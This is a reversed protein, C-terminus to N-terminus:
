YVRIGTFREPEPRTRLRYINSTGFPNGGTSFYIWGDPGETLDIIGDNAGLARQLGTESELVKEISSVQSRPDVPNDLTLLYIEGLNFTGFLVQNRYKEPLGTGSYICIGTPSITPQFEFYIPDIYEENQNPGEFDNWGFHDGFLAQNIEDFSIFSNETFYLAESQPHFAFDFANRVGMCYLHSSAEGIQPPAAPDIFYIGGCWNERELAPNTEREEGAPLIGGDGMSVFLVQEPTSGRPNPGFHINEINHVQKDGFGEGPLCDPFDMVSTLDSGMGEGDEVFQSIRWTADSIVHSVYVKGGQVPEFGPDFALGVAGAEIGSSIPTIRIVPDSVDGTITSLTRVFGTNKELIFLRGDPSFTLSTVFPLDSQIQEIVLDPDNTEIFDLSAAQESFFILFLVLSILGRYVM